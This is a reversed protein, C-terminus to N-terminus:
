SPEFKGDFTQCFNRDLSTIRGLKHPNGNSDLAEGNSDWQVGGNSDMPTWQLGM